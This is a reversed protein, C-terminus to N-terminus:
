HAAATSASRDSGAVGAKSNSVASSCNLGTSMRTLLAVPHSASAEAEWLFDGVSGGLSGLLVVRHRGGEFKRGEPDDDCPHVLWDGIGAPDGIGHPFLDGRARGENVHGAKILDCLHDGIEGEVRGGQDGRVHEREPLRGIGPRAPM